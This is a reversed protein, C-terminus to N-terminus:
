RVKAAGAIGTFNLMGVAAAEGDAPGRLFDETGCVGGFVDEGIEDCEAVGEAVVVFGSNAGSEVGRVSGAGMEFTLQGEVTSGLVPDGVGDVEAPFVLLIEDLFDAIDFVGVDDFGDQFHLLRLGLELRSKLGLGQQIALAEEVEQALGKWLVRPAIRSLVVATRLRVM